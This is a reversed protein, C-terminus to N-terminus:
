TMKELTPFEKSKALKNAEKFKNTLQIENMGFFERINKPLSKKGGM